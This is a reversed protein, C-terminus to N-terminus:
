FWVGFEPFGLVFILLHGCVGYQWFVFSHVKVGIVIPNLDEICRLHWPSGDTVKLYRPFGSM